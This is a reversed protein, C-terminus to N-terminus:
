TDRKLWIRAEVYSAQRKQFVSEEDSEGDKSKYASASKVEDLVDVTGTYLDVKYGQNAMYHLALSSTKDIARGMGKVRIYKVKKYEGRQFKRHDVSSKDFKELIADIRKIASVYPTGSKVLFTTEREIKNPIETNPSHKIIVM